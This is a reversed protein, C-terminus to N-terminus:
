LLTKKIAEEFSVIAYNGLKTKSYEPSYAIGGFLKKVPPLKFIKFPIGFIKSSKKNLNLVAAIQAMIEVSSVAPNDQAPFIGSATSDLILKVLECLNDIYILGQTIETYCLPIFPTLKTIKKFTSIYSGKCNKGYVNAPRIYSIKFDDAELKKLANEAALKSLGYFSKPACETKATIINSHLSKNNEYVAMTSFFVFHRVGANKAYKATLKPLETNVREYISYEKVDKRHVIAALHIVCDYGIFDSESFEKNEVDLDDIEYTDCPLYSKLSEGIYSNKGILLIKM